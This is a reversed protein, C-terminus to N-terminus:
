RIPPRPRWRTASAQSCMAGGATLVCRLLAGRVAPAHSVPGPARGADGGRYRVHPVVGRGPGLDRAAPPCQRGAAPPLRRAGARARPGKRCRARHLGQLFRLRFPESRLVRERRVPPQRRCRGRHGRLFVALFAGTPLYQRVMRSFQFPVRYRMTFQLDSVSRAVERTLAVGKAFRQAYLQALQMFGARRAAAVEAPADDADFFRSEDYEYYRVFRAVRRAM